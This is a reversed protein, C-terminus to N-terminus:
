RDTEKKTQRDTHGDMQGLKKGMQGLKKGMQGYRQRAKRVEREM